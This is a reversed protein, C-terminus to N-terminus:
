LIDAKPKAMAVPVPPKRYARALDYVERLDSGTLALAITGGVLLPATVVFFMLGAVSKATQEEVGLVNSLAMFTFFHFVGVNSPPGPVITGLRMIVLVVLTATWDQGLQYGAMLAYIPVLQLGLYLISGLCAVFFWRSRAMAHLSEVVMLLAESWRHGTTVHRALRKSFVAFLVLSGIVVVLGLLIAAGAEVRKPLVSVRLICAFCAVLLIGDLLREIIASSLVKSFRIHNWHAVLYCRVLEGSKLPLVENAFLGIYVAQVTRWLRVSALPKLLVMWRWAQIIYVLFGCCVALVIWGWHIAKLRPVESHWDFDHYVWLLCLAALLYALWQVANQKGNGSRSEPTTGM